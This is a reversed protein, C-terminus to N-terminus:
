EEIINGFRKWPEHEYCSKFGKPIFITINYNDFAEYGGVHVPVQPKMHIENLNSCGAFAYNEIETVSNPITVSTLGTCGGFAYRGISTVSNPITTNKSGKIM